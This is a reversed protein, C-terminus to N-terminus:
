VPRPLDGIEIYELARKLLAPNEKFMGLGLNCVRCLPGRVKGTIHDHDIWLSLGGEIGCIACKTGYKAIVDAITM